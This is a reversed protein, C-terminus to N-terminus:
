VRLVRQLIYKYFVRGYFSLAAKSRNTPYDFAFHYSLASYSRVLLKFKRAFFDNTNEEEVDDCILYVPQDNTHANNIIIGADSCTTPVTPGTTQIHQVHNYGNAPSPGVAHAFGDGKLLFFCLYVFFVAVRM